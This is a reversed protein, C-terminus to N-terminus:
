CDKDQVGQQRSVILSDSKTSQKETIKLFPQIM